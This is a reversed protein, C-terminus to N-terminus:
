FLVGTDYLDPSDLLHHEVNSCPVSVFLEVRRSVEPCEQIIMHLANVVRGVPLTKLLRDMDGRNGSTEDVADQLASRIAEKDKLDLNGETTQDVHGTKSHDDIPRQFPFPLLRELCGDDCGDIDGCGRGHDYGKVCSSPARRGCNFGLAFPEAVFSLCEHYDFAFAECVVEISRIFRLWSTGPGGTGGTAFVRFMKIM